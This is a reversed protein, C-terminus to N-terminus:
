EGKMPIGYREVLFALRANDALPVVYVGHSKYTPLTLRKRIIEGVYRPTVFRKFDKAHREVVHATIESVSLTKRDGRDRLDCIASLVLAEPCFSRDFQLEDDMTNALTRIRERDKASSIISLLPVLLQNTRASHHENRESQDIALTHRHQFRYSLLRNRLAAAETKQVDPLNLPIESRISRNGMAETLCRSELAEDEFSHRMAILKPGYVHFAIPEFDRERNMSTRLVPFGRVNGQNLIKVIDSQEDSFRFDAEDIILTGRFHDLTHFIPSVTAAGSAFFAKYCLSGIVSLARTKGTGFDGRFRLYPLENFSDYVWTLLVYWIAASRFEPSLDLYQDFYQGIEDALDIPSAIPEPKEPLLLVEHRILNHTYPVPALMVGGSEVSDVVSVDTGHGIALRTKKETPSAVLEILDGNAEISSVIQTPKKAQKQNDGPM